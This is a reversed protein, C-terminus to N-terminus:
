LKKTLKYGQCRCKEIDWGCLEFFQQATHPFDSTMYEEVLDVGKEELTECLKFYLDMSVGKREHEKRVFLGVIRAAGPRSPSWDFLPLEEVGDGQAQDQARKRLEFTRLTRHVFARQAVVPNRLAFELWFRRADSIALVYGALAQQAPSRAILLVSRPSLLSHSLFTMLASESVQTMWYAPPRETVLELLGPLDDRRPVEVPFQAGSGIM